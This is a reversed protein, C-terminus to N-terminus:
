DESIEESSGLRKWCGDVCICLRARLGATTDDLTKLPIPHEPDQAPRRMGDRVVSFGMPISFVWGDAGISSSTNLERAFVVRDEDVRM